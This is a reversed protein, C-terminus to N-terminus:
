PQQYADALRRFATKPEWREPTEATAPEVVKVVGFSAMDLDTRPEATHVMRPESFAYVLRGRHWRRSLAGGASQHWHERSLSRADYAVGTDYTIGRM